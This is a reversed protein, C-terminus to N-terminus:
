GGAVGLLKVLREAEERWVFHINLKLDSGDPRRFRAVSWVTGPRWSSLMGKARPDAFALGAPRSPWRAVTLFLVRRNTVQVFYHTILFQGVVRLVGSALWPSPGAIALLGVQRREGPELIPGLAQEMRQWVTDKHVPM